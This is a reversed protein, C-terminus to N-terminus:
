AGPPYVMELMDKQTSFKFEELELEEARQQEVAEIQRVNDYDVVQIQRSALFNLLNELIEPTELESEPGKEFEGDLYALIEDCGQEGDAKAKGVLGDSAERAWGIVFTGWLPQNQTPDAVMYRPRDPHAEWPEVVTAFSSSWRSDLPLGLSPEISDGIAFVVTDCPLVEEEELTELQTGGDERPVLRTKKCVLGTVEGSADREIRSPTRFFRMNFKTDSETELPTGAFRTLEGFVKEPEQGVGVMSPTITDFEARLQEVDLAGSVLRLEKRTTKREAPGRRAVSTVREVKKECALWHVIDLSVNGLGIVCVNEGIAFERESYPPLANYHYVLDKAHFVSEADEGELGLWKTGQAGVAVVIADFGMERIEDISIDADQGVSVNGLYTVRPNSLIKRFITRLGRKMKYKNPYIGFEALGGPKIDRNIIVVNHGANVLKDTSYLAAPGAGIMAITYNKSSM